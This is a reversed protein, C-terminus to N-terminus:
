FKMRYSYDKSYDESPLEKPGSSHKKSNGANTHDLEDDLIYMFVIYFIALNQQYSLTNQFFAIKFFRINIHKIFLILRIGMINSCM